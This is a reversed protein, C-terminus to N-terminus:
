IPLGREGIGTQIQEQTLPLSGGLQGILEESTPQNAQQKRVIAAQIQEDTVGQQQPQELAQGGQKRTIAAQIQEDTVPM